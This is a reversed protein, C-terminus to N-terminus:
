REGSLRRFAHEATTRGLLDPGQEANGKVAEAFQQEMSLVTLQQIPLFDGVLGAGADVPEDSHEKLLVLEFELVGPAAIM